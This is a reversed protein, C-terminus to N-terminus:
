HAQALPSVCLAPSYAIISYNGNQSTGFSHIIARTRSVDVDKFMVNDSNELAKILDQKTQIENKM